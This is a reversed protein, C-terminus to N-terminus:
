KVDAVYMESILNIDELGWPIPYTSGSHLPLYSELCHKKRATFLENMKHKFSISLCGWWKLYKRVISGAFTPDCRPFSLQRPLDISSNGLFPFICPIHCPQGSQGSGKETNDLVAGHTSPKEHTVQDSQAWDPTLWVSTEQGLCQPQRSAYTLRVALFLPQAWSTAM